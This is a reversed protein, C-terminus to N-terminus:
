SEGPYLRQSLEQFLPRAREIEQGHLERWKGARPRSGGHTFVRQEIMRTLRDLHESENLECYERIIDFTRLPASITDEYRVLLYRDRFHEELDQLATRNSEVWQFACIEELSRDTWAQWGPPVLYHWEGYVWPGSGTKSWNKWGEMLSSITDEARRVVFLIRADPFLRALFPIRLSNAPTKEVLRLPPRKYLRNMPRQLLKRPLLRLGRHDKFIEKNHAEEYFARTIAGATEPAPPEVIRDGMEPHIPYHRYFIHQSEEYLSWTRPHEALNNFILTTGSRNCGIVLIPRDLLRTRSLAGARDSGAASTTAVNDM